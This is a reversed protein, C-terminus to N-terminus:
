AAVHSGGRLLNIRVRPLARLRRTQVYAIARQMREPDDRFMGLGTNCRQCLLGRVSDSAHDHDVYLRKGKDPADQCIACLGGQAARLREYEDRSLGYKSKIIYGHRAGNGRARERTRQNRERMEEPTIRSKWREYGERHREPNSRYWNRVYVNWCPRCKGSGKQVASPAFSDLPKAEGCAPCRIKGDVIAM